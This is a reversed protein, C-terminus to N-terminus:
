KKGFNGMIIIYLLFTLIIGCCIFILNMVFPYPTLGFLLIIGGLGFVIVLSGKLIIQLIKIFIDGMVIGILQFITSTDPTWKM